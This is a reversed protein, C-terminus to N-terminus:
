VTICCTDLDYASKDLSTSECVFVASLRTKANTVHLIRVDDLFLQDVGIMGTFSQNISRLSVKGPPQPFSAAGCGYCKNIM